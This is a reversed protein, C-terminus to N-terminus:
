LIRRQRAEVYGAGGAVVLLAIGAGIMLWVIPVFEQPKLTNYNGLNDKFVQTMHQFRGLSSPLTNLAKATSPFNQGLMTTLQTPSMGLHQAMAPMMGTQMQAGMASLTQLSAGASTVLQQTYLPKLNANLQDADSAKQPLSMALPAAILLIGLAGAAVLSFRRAFWLWIGVGMTLLGIALISWPVTTAPLTGTPIQDASEFYPRQAGLTQVLGTFQPVATPLLKEGSVVAPFNKDLYAALQADSMGLQQAFAPMLKTQMETAAAGLGAVDQAQIALSQQTMIPRFGDTLNEFSPGVKYLNSAFTAVVLALGIAVVVVAAIRRVPLSGRRAPVPLTTPQVLTTTM